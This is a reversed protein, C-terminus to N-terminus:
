TGQGYSPATQRNKFSQNYQGPGPFSVTLDKTLGDRQGTGFGFKPAAEKDAMTVPYNGPGPAITKSLPPLRKGSGFKYKAPVSM